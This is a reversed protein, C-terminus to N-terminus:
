KAEQKARRKARYKERKRWMQIGEHLRLAPKRLHMMTHCDACLPIMDKEPDTETPGTESLEEIHHCQLWGKPLGQKNLKLTDDELWEGDEGCIYCHPGHFEICKRRNRPDREIKSQTVERSGGEPKAKLLEDMWADDEEPTKIITLNTGDVHAKEPHILTPLLWRSIQGRKDKWDEYPIREGNEKVPGIWRMAMHGIRWHRPQDFSFGRVGTIESEERAGVHHFSARSGNKLLDRAAKREARKSPKQSRGRAKKKAQEIDDRFDESTVSPDETNLYLMLSLAIRVMSESLAHCAMRNGLGKGDSEMGEMATGIGPIHSGWRSLELGEVQRDKDLATWRTDAHPGNAPKLSTRVRYGFDEEEVELPQAFAEAHVEEIIQGLPKARTEDNIQISFFYRHYAIQKKLWEAHAPFVEKRWEKLDWKDEGGGFKVGVFTLCDDVGQTPPAKLHNVYFGDLWESDELSVYFCGYPMKLDNITTKGLDTHIFMEAILPSLSFVQEGYHAYNHMAAKEQVAYEDQHKLGFLCKHDLDALQWVDDPSISVPDIDLAKPTYLAVYTDFLNAEVERNGKHREMQMLCDLAGGIQARRVGLRNVPSARDYHPLKYKRKPM